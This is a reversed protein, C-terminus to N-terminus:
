QRAEVDAQRAHSRLRLRRSRAGVVDMRVLASDTPGTAGGFLDSACGVVSEEVSIAALLPLGRWLALGELMTLLARPHDSRRPLRARLIEAGTREAVVITVHGRSVRVTTMWDQM